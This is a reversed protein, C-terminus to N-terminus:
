SSEGGVHVCAAVRGEGSSRLGVDLSACEEVAVDCRARFACGRPLGAPDPARGALGHPSLRAGVDGVPSLAGVLGRVYPHSPAQVVAKAPGHEVIRGAYMVALEDCWASLVSVDHSIMLLAIRDDAVIQDLLRLVQAEIMVDLATTAEDAIILGPRCALAMAIMVRQRQGGSLQHPFSGARWGPLGVRELLGGVRGAAAKPSLKDHLILPEAIQHGVTRVPNLAHMAGQFVISAGTWRVARLRGWSMGAVDEDDILIRGSVEASAPLLRLAALAVSSKGCGSEGAVGVRRGSAVELSVGRVARVGGPYTM